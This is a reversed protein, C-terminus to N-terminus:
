KVAGKWKLLKYHTHISSTKKGDQRYTIACEYVTFRKYTYIKKTIWTHHGRKGKCSIVTSTSQAYFVLNIVKKSHFLTGWVSMSMGVKEGRPHRPWPGREKSDLNRKNIHWFYTLAYSPMSWGSGTIRRKGRRGRRRRWQKERERERERERELSVWVTWMSSWWLMYHICCNFFFM